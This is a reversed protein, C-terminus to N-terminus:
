DGRIMARAIAGRFGQRWEALAAVGAQYEPEAVRRRNIAGAAEDLVKRTAPQDPNPAQALAREAAARLQAYAAHRADRDAAEAHADLAAQLEPAPAGLGRLAQVLREENTRLADDALAVRQRHNGDLRACDWVFASAVLAAMALLALPIALRRM